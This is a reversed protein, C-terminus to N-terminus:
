ETFIRVDAASIALRVAEGRKRDFPPNPEIAKLTQGDPLKLTYQEVEGQYTTNEITAPLGDNKGIVIAEPRIGITVFQSPTISHHLSPATASLHHEGIAIVIEDQNASVVRATFFNMEGIFDAVFRNRPQRYIERPTGIQVIRGQHMVALRDALSLAEKQDHTVYLSTIGSERQIRKIEDRMELRLKADLNSLPEDLLLIDPKVVLARALAVRQQQGGSLQNPSRDALTDLQAIRLAESVRQAREVPPVDRVDLGYAVNEFVSMHPWLAYNQFVMGTNRRNPPVHTVNRDGFFIEGRDPTYFGALMRLVTTKGCGSPGLLFFLEGDSIEFSVGDVALTSGFSKVLNELRAKVAQTSSIETPGLM